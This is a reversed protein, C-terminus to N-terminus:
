CIYAYTCLVPSSCCQVYRHHLYYLLWGDVCFFYIYCSVLNIDEVGFVAPFSVTMKRSVEEWLRTSQTFAPRL